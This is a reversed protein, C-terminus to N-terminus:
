GKPARRRLVRGVRALVESRLDALSDGLLRRPACAIGLGVVAQAAGAILHREWISSGALAELAWVGPGVVLAAISFARLHAQALALVNARTLVAVQVLIAAYYMSAGILFGLAAGAVGHQAGWATGGALLVLFVWQFALARGPLDFGLCVSDLIKQLARPALALMILTAPPVAATWKSGLLVHVILAMHCALLTALTVFVPLALSMARVVGAAARARDERVRAFAPVLANQLSAASVGMVIDMIRGGRSYLGLAAAGIQSGVVFNPSALAAWNVILNLTHLGGRRSLNGLGSWSRPWRLPTRAIVTVALMEFIASAISGWVVAWAGFGMWALPIAVAVSNLLSSVALIGAWARFRGALRLMAGGVPALARLPLTLAILWVLPTLEPFGFGAAALPAATALAAALVLSVALAAWSAARLEDQTSDRKGLLTLAFAGEYISLPLALVSFTAAILGFEHPSLLRALVATSVLTALMACVRAGSLWLAGRIAVKGESSPPRELENVTAM